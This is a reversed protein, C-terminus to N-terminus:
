KEHHYRVTTFAFMPNIFMNCCLVGCILSFYKFSFCNVLERYVHLDITQFYFRNIIYANVVELVVAVVIFIATSQYTSLSVDLGNTSKLYPVFEITTVLLLIAYGTAVFVVCRIGFDLAIFQQWDRHPLRPQLLFMKFYKEGLSETLVYYWETARVVYLMWESLLHLFQLGLFEPISTISEFLVRYFTYFFMLGLFEGVFFMSCSPNKYRDLFMGLGKMAFRFITTVVIYFGFLGLRQIDSLSGNRFYETFFILFVYDASYVTVFLASALWMHMRNASPPLSGYQNDFNKFWYKPLFPFNERSFIQDLIKILSVKSLKMLIAYLSFLGEQDTEGETDM